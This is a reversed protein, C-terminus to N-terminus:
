IREQITKAQEKAKPRRRKPYTKTRNQNMKKIANNSRRPEREQNIRGKPDEQIAIGQSKDKVRKQSPQVEAKKPEKRSPNGQYKEKKARRSMRRARPVKQNGEVEKEKRPPALKIERDIIEVPEEIFHLKDDVQIEDLPIALPEDSMCKNLNSVHFTSHVKNLQQIVGKWSSVKLMVKDGVQFELPKRRVDAYSKQRDRAAQIRSKIQVIKKTTEHIIEPGTLKISTHYSNNYSFEILPLHRDWGKGFDLVCTRLMDELTQIFRESHGDTQPHYATSMDLRTGLAKNLSKWFHSTFRGDRDSIILVPVRHRSVVEKLYQRTLKELTEDFDMTINEWKWQPIEPQVLLSSPKHYEVKVKACTLCKSIYTAIEVKMNPWWYLKKLDQYMKDSGPHISYKSKHSEHMILARLDGFRPIWSRNNLCLTGDARPELKNIMGHLDENIFNEEKRAKSQARRQGMDLEKQDFIHQLSKHDTFVVCKTGYLYYRWMKLAFVVVGLKLDHTNYNKEHVKLQRSAYAIVKEKQMLVVGFGKHSADCYVVFNESGEPLALILASCLKQELLQFAAEAKEGWEFNVSRQTLKMMPRAIKSFGEIFGQYYGALCKSFKAYLEEKKLLRLILKLHGEHEKRSLKEVEEYIAKNRKPAQGRKKQRVPLCGERINLRHEAIHRPVGTMDTPKWVFIDLNRRLLRVAGEPRRKNLYLRNSYKIRSIRPPNDSSDKRRHSRLTVTRGTVLFKLMRHATSSVVQIKKVVMFNMWASTSHEENGIKVLLSIQGMPWIIEGSFGVLPTTTPIMQSRVELCFRNFYHEYLIESSSGGDVYMRHVFHGGIEAEIIMSGEMGDEEGLPPFSIVTEPSFTQTIRQKAVRHWPQVMLIALPKDKESTEGKKAAKAQDKGNNQKLEKILHSLKGTKLMEEIQRKLHMCENTTHGVEGHFECFKSANRKEVPTTM